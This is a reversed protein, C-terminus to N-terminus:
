IFRFSVSDSRPPEQFLLGRFTRTEFRLLFSGAFRLLLIPTRHTPSASGRRLALFALAARFSNRRAHLTRKRTETGACQTVDTRWVCVPREARHYGEFIRLRLKASRGLDMVRFEGRPNGGKTGAVVAVM